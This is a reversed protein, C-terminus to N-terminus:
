PLTICLRLINSLDSSDINFVATFMGGPIQRPLGEDYKHTGSEVTQFLLFWALALVSREGGYRTCRQKGKAAREWLVAARRRWKGREGPLGSREAAIM